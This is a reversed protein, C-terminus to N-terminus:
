KKSSCSSRIAKPWDFCWESNVSECVYYGKWEGEMKTVHATNQEAFLIKQAALKLGTEVREFTIASRNRTLFKEAQRSYLFEISM